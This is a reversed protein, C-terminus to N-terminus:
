PILLKCQNTKKKLKSLYIIKTTMPQANLKQIVIDSFYLINRHNTKFFVFSNLSNCKRYHRKTFKDKTCNMITVMKIRKM